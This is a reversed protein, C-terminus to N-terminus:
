LVSTVATLYSRGFGVCCRGFKILNMSEAGLQISSIAFATRSCVQAWCWAWVTVVNWFRFWFYFSLTICQGISLSCCSGVMLRFSNVQVNDIRKFHDCTYNYAGSHVAWRLDEHHVTQSLESIAALPKFLLYLNQHDAYLGFRNPTAHPGRIREVIM